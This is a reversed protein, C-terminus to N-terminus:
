NKSTAKLTDPRNKILSNLLVMNMQSQSDLTSPDIPTIASWDVVSQSFIVSSASHVTATTGRYEKDGVKCCATVYYISDPELPGVTILYTQTDADLTASIKEPTDSSINFEFWFSDITGSYQVTGKLTAYLTSVTAGNTTVVPDAVTQGDDAAYSGRMLMLCAMITLIILCVFKNKMSEEGWSHRYLTVQHKLLIGLDPSLMLIASNIASVHIAILIYHASHFLAAPRHTIM